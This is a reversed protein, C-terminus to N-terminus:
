ALTRSAEAACRDLGREIADHHADDRVPVASYQHSWWRQHGVAGGRRDRPVPDGAAVTLARSLAGKTLQVLRPLDRDDACSLLVHVHDPAVVTRHLVLERISAVRDLDDVVVRRQGSTLRVAPWKLDKRRQEALEASPEPVAGGANGGGREIWGRAPADLWAGYVTWSILVLM